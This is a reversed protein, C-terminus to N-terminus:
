ASCGAPCSPAIEPTFYARYAPLIGAALMPCFCPLWSVWASRRCPPDSRSCATRCSPVSWVQRRCGVAVMETSGLAQIM